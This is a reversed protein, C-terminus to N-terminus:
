SQRHVLGSALLKRFRVRTAPDPGAPLLLQKVLVAVLESKTIFM